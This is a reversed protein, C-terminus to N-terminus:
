FILGAMNHRLSWKRLRFGKQIFTPNFYTPQWFNIFAKVRAENKKYKHPKIGYKHGLRYAREKKLGGIMENSSAPMEFMQEGWLTSTVATTRPSLIVIQDFAKYNRITWPIMLLFIVIFWTTIFSYKYKSISYTKSKRKIFLFILPFYFIYPFFREDIHILVSFLVASIIVNIYKLKKIAQVLLLMILPLLLFLAPEKALNYSYKFYDYYLFGWLALILAFKQNMVEQGLRFLVIIILSVCLANFLFFPIVPDGFIKIFTAILIPILPAVRMHSVNEEFIEPYWDGSAIQRGMSLYEFDDDWAIDTYYYNFLSISLKLIISIFVLWYVFKKYNIQYINM